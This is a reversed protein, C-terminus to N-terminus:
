IDRERTTRRGKRFSLKGRNRRTIKSIFIGAHLLANVFVARCPKVPLATREAALAGPITETVSIASKSNQRLSEQQVTQLDVSIFSSYERDFPRFGKALSSSSM